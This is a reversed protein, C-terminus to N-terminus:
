IGLFNNRVGLDIMEFIKEIEDKFRQILEIKSQTVILDDLYISAILYETTTVNM